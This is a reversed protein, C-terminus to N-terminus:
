DEHTSPFPAASRRGEDPRRIDRWLGLALWVTAALGTLLCGIAAALAIDSHMNVLNPAWLRLLVFDVLAVVLVRGVRSVLLRRPINM